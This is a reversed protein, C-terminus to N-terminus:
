VVRKLDFSVDPTLLPIKSDDDIAIKYHLTVPFGAPHHHKLELQYDDFDM